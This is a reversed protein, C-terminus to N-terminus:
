VKMLKASKGRQPEPHTQNIESIQDEFLCNSNHTTLSSSSGQLHLRQKKMVEEKVMYIFCNEGLSDESGKVPIMM